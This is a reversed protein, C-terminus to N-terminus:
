GRLSGEWAEFEGRVGELEKGLHALQGDYDKLVRKTKRVVEEPVGKQSGEVRKGLRKGEEELWRARERLALMRAWIEEERGAFAPDLVAKELGMLTRRLGEEMADLPRGRERYVQAKVALRLCRESLEVHRRRAGEMRVTLSQQHRVMVANLSNNMEHLRGRMEKVTRAQYEMREGLAHFGRVIIPVFSVSGSGDKNEVPAPKAALAAEWEKENEDANKYYFPAYAANVANYLYTQMLTDQSSPDWKRVLSQILQM